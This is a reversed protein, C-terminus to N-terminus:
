LQGQLYISKRYTGMGRYTLFDPHMEWCSPVPLKYDYKEPLKGDENLRTFEWLGDLEEQYRINHTKFLRVM